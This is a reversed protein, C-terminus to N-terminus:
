KCLEYKASLHSFLAAALAVEQPDRSSVKDPHLLLAAKMYARKIQKNRLEEEIDLGGEDLPLTGGSFTEGIPTAEFSSPYIVHLDKLLSALPRRAAWVHVV